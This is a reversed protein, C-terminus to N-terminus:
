VYPAGVSPQCSERRNIKDATRAPPSPNEIRDPLVVNLNQAKHLQEGPLARRQPPSRHGGRGGSTPRRLPGRRLAAGGGGGHLLRADRGAAGAGARARVCRRLRRRGADLRARYRRSSAPNGPGQLSAATPLGLRRRSIVDVTNVGGPAGGLAGNPGTRGHDMVMSASAAGRRLTCAYTVGFGGRWRGAGGSGEHLSYEQFLVPYKQEMVEIPQMKSIGITSCGNTLGDGEPSGGYGGGTFLYMVYDRGRAPDGGGVAFNGSTGAPAAFLRDPIAQALADFVAEAIRQSVEAACGSVPRPYEAHLFTGKPETIHLPEFMGANIPVDPFIHRIALYIASKTTAAVSNMPGLCPPSSQSMDFYLESGDVCVQMDITLPENVVGDSDVTALGRYSGDPITEIKARMQRAARQRMEKIVDEVLSQGYKDLLATM